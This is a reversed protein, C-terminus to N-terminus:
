FLLKLLLYHMCFVQVRSHVSKSNSLFCMGYVEILLPTFLLSISPLFVSNFPLVVCKKRHVDHAIGDVTSVRGSLVHFLIGKLREGWQSNDNGECKSCKNSLCSTETSPKRNRVGETEGEWCRENDMKECLVSHVSELPPLLPVVGVNRRGVSM